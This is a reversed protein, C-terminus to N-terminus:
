WDLEAMSEMVEKNTFGVFRFNTDKELRREDKSAKTLKIDGNNSVAPKAELCHCLDTVVKSGTKEAKEDKDIEQDTDKSILPPAIDNDVTDPKPSENRNAEKESIGVNAADEDGHESM